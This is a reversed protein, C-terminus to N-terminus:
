KDQGGANNVISLFHYKTLIVQGQSSLLFDEFAQADSAHTSGKTVAVPYQAIVNFDDPITIMEVKGTVASTVDSLYVMGADAENLQVKQVVAKVNDEQSVVNKKVASEYSAGYAPSAGLKDFIQLAYKGAPVTPGGLVIKVGSKSLDKLSTIHAPNSAPVILVLRNKAFVKPTQVLNGDIAKQMNTQDASAFIDAAAGNAIQQVLQQSGAFNYQLRISAHSTEYQGKIENFAETLSAAAFINLTTAPTANTATGTGGPTVAQTQGGCAACLLVLLTLLPLVRLPTRM